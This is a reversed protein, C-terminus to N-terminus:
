IDIIKMGNEPFWMIKKIERCDRENGHGLRGFNGKGCSFVDGCRNLVMTFGDSACVKVAPSHVTFIDMQAITFKEEQQEQYKQNKSIM